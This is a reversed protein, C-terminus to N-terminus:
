SGKICDIMSQFHGIKEFCTDAIYYVSGMAKVVTNKFGELIGAKELASFLKYVVYLSAGVMYTYWSTFFGFVKKFNATSLHPKLVNLIDRFIRPIFDFMM